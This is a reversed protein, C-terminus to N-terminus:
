DTVRRRIPKKEPFEIIFTSAPPPSSAAPEGPVVSTAVPPTAAAPSREALMWALAVAGAVLIGAGAAMLPGIARTAGRRQEPDLSDPHLPATDEMRDAAAAFAPQMSAPQTAMSAARAGAVAPIKAGSGPTSRAHTADHPAPAAADPQLRAISEFLLHGRAGAFPLLSRALETVSQARQASDKELCRAVAREIRLPVDWRHASMPLPADSLISAMVAMLEDGGFPTRATLMRYLTVGLAWVDTRVDTHKFSRLQEPSMYHVSGMIVGTATLSAEQVSEAGSLLMKSLGFDLVKVLSTGDARQALFLNKPKLDRHIIGRAHAEALAACIQLGYDAAEGVPLAGRTRLVDGLDEGVLHELVMYPAGTDLTGVDLVRVVHESELAAAARAERLFRASADPLAATAPLLFKIAVRRGLVDDTASLVVGMGGAGLVREVRYKGVIM